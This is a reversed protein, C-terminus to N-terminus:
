IDMTLEANSPLICVLTKVELLNSMFYFYILIFRGTPLVIGNNLLLYRIELRIESIVIKRITQNSINEM